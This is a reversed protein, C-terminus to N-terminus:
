RYYFEESARQRIPISWGARFGYLFDLKRGLDFSQTDYNYGRRNKTFGQQFELGLYFNYLNKKGFHQYGIFQKLALGSHLRDYGKLMEESLQFVDGDRYDIFIKHQLYGVGLQTLIGSNQNTFKLPILKGVSAFLSFGRLDYSIRVLEGQSDTIDGRENAIGSLLGVRKVKSGFMFNGEIEFQFNSATKFGLAAGATNAQQFTEEFDGSPLLYSYQFRIFPISESSDRYNKVQSYGKLFVANLLFLIAIKSFNM